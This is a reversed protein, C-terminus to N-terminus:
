DGNLKDVEKKMEKDKKKKDKAKIGMELVISDERAYIMHPADPPFIGAEGQTYVGDFQCGKVMVNGKIIYFNEEESHICGGIAKGKKLKIISVEKDDELIKDNVFISRREDVSVEKFEM